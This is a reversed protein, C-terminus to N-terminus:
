LAPAPAAGSCTVTANIGNPASTATFTLTGDANTVSTITVTLGNSLRVTETAKLNQLASSDVTVTTHFPITRGFFTVSGACSLSEPAAAAPLASVLSLVAAASLALLRLRM